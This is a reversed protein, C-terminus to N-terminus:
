ASEKMLCEVNTQSLFSVNKYTVLNSCLLSYQLSRWVLPQNQVITLFVYVLSRLLLSFQCLKPSRLSRTRLTIKYIFFFISTHKQIWLKPLDMILSANQCFGGIFPNDHSLNEQQLNQKFKRLSFPQVPSVVRVPYLLMDEVGRSKRRKRKLRILLGWFLLTRKLCIVFM